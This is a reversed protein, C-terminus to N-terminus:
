KEPLDVKGVFTYYIEIEQTRQKGRRKGDLAVAEHVVIKEVLERLMTPTLEEFSTYKRVVGMFKEVNATAEQAKGMESQLQAVREKLTSQEQEYDASLEAFREDTIRGSVSDEYLRKFIGKLEAIRKEAADLERRRAANKKKGGDETQALLLKTFQAEHKAAYGTIARLNATVGEALLDTRIFHSTCDATRKKYNGCIYCDQKRTPNDYRQQYMLSGCDACFVLGSFMGVEGYRNPRKRQKRLEQVREWTTKDIIAPHTNEFVIQKEEPNIVSHKLKYSVKETKFNVTNGIYEQRELIHGVTNTSWRCPYDPYYRRTNGTRRYEMTGPTPINQATLIRAIKGPGNGALCLDYIQKVTPATEEDIAFMGDAGKIYGYPPLSTLPKGSMGKSKFVAKIKKSTDRVMWENFLNKLASLESEGEASDVGDNIAIYRVGKRPFVMETYMGVQLYNRGLRSLDKTVVTKIEGSEVGEMMETFSPRDFNAGSWGDDVFFKCNLLGKDKAFAELIRKQNSISNSEGQLEDDRSLRCYLATVPIQTAQQRLM